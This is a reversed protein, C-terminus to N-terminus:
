KLPLTSTLPSVEKCMIVDCEIGSVGEGKNGDKNLWIKEKMGIFRTSLLKM